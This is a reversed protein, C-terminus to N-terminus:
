LKTLVNFQQADDLVRVRGRNYGKTITLTMHTMYIILFGEFTTVMELVQLLLISYSAFLLLFINKM